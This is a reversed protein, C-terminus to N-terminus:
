LFRIPLYIKTSNAVRCIMEAPCNTQTARLPEVRQLSTFLNSVRGLVANYTFVNFITVVAVTDPTPSLYNFYPSHRPGLVPM